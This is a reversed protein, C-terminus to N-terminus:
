HRHYFGSHEALGGRFCVVALPSQRASLEGGRDRKQTGHMHCVSFVCPNGTRPRPVPCEQLHLAERFISAAPLTRSKAPAFGMESTLAHSHFASCSRPIPGEPVQCSEHCTREELFNPGPRRTSAYGVCLVDPNKHVSSEM